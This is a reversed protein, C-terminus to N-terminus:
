YELNRRPTQTPSTSCRLCMYNSTYRNITQRNLTQFQPTAFEPNLCKPSLAKLNLTQSYKRPYCGSGDWALLTDDMSTSLDLEMGGQSPRWSSDDLEREM